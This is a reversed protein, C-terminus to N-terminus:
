ESGDDDVGDISLDLEDDESAVDVLGHRFLLDRYAAEDEAIDKLITARVRAADVPSVYIVRAAGGTAPAPLTVPGSRINALEAYRRQQRDNHALTAEMIVQALERRQGDLWKGAGKELARLDRDVTKEDVHLAEAIQEISWRQVYRLRAVKNQRERKEADSRARATAM